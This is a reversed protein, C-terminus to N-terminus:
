KEELDKVNVMIKVLMFIVYVDMIDLKKAIYYIVSAMLFIFIEKSISINMIQKCRVKQRNWNFGFDSRKLKVMEGNGRYFVIGEIYHEELYKKLSEVESM